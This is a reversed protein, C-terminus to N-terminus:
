VEVNEQELAELLDLLFYPPASLESVVIESNDKKFRVYGFFQLVTYQSPNYKVLKRIVKQTKKHSFNRGYFNLYNIYELIITVM